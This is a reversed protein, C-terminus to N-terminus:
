SDKLRNIFKMGALQLMARKRLKKPKRSHQNFAETIFELYHNGTEEMNPLTILSQYQYYNDVLKELLSPIQEPEEFLEGGQKVIEPHGGDNLAIAPLGCSLGEILANSCADKESATIYIDHEKLLLTLQDPPLPRIKKINQFSVPSNGVFTLEYKSFDLNQDLWSYTDFGKAKNSSWSSIILKVKGAPDFKSKDLRNFFEPLAANMIVKEVPSKPFGLRHNENRSWDSQFITADAINKNAWHTVQDRYNSGKSHLWVPGDVRHIFLKDPYSKKLRVVENMNAHSLFLIVDADEIDTTLLNQSELHARLARAFQNSGGFPGEQFIHSIYITPQNM